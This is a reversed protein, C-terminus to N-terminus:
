KFVSSLMLSNGVHNGLNEFTIHTIAPLPFILVKKQCFGGLFSILSTFTKFTIINFFNQGKM